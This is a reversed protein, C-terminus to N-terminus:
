NCQNMGQLFSIYYLLGMYLLGSVSLNLPMTWSMTVPPIYNRLSIALGACIRIIGWVAIPISVIQPLRIITM